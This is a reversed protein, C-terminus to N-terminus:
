RFRVTTSPTQDLPLICAMGGAKFFYGSSIRSRAERNTRSLRSMVLSPTTTPTM